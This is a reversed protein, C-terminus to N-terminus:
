EFGYSLVISTGDQGDAAENQATVVTVTEGSDRKAAIARYGASAARTVSFGIGDLKGEYFKFVADATDNTRLTLTGSAKDGKGSLVKAIVKAGPYLIVWNPLADRDSIDIDPASSGSPKGGKAQNDGSGPKGGSPAQEQFEKLSITTTAGTKKDRFSVLQKEEDVSIVEIDPNALEVAKAATRVPNSTVENLAYYTFYLVVSAAAVGILALGGCGALVWLWVNSKKAAPQPPPYPTPQM